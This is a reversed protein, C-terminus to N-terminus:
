ALRWGKADGCRVLGHKIRIDDAGRGQIHAMAVQWDAVAALYANHATDDEGAKPTPAWNPAIPYRAQIAANMAEIM